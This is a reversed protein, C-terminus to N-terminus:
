PNRATGVLGDKWFALSAFASGGGSSWYGCIFCRGGKVELGRHGNEGVYGTWAGSM